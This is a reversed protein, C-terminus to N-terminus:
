IAAPPYVSGPEQVELPYNQLANEVSRILDAGNDERINM